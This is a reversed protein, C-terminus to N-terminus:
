GSKLSLRVALNIAEIMSQCNAKNKGAIDYATGHDPSTRIIPLGLTFNVGRDFALTKLPILGQDHYMCVVADAKGQLALWFVHDPSYPGSISKGFDRQARDIAPVIIRKEEFGQEERVGGHPNLAAVFIRPRRIGLRVLGQYTLHITQYISSPTLLSSVKKLPVHITVLAVRLLDSVLMMSFSKTHTRHALWETQGPFRFGIQKLGAKHVPATVLATYDGQLCGIVGAELSTLVFQGASKSIKGPLVKPALNELLIKYRFRSDLKGSQLAKRVIEPGIGAVDGLTIAITKM